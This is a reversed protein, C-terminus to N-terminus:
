VPTAITEKKIPIITVNDNFFEIIKQLNDQYLTLPSSMQYSVQELYDQNLTYLSPHQQLFHSFPDIYSYDFTLQFVQHVIRDVIQSHHITTAAAGSYARILGGTGLKTGGFYRTVVILVDHLHEKQIVSLIPVGATQSPEGDDSCRAVSDDPGIVYAFCNHNAKQHEKRIKGLHISAEEESEVPIITGIFRSGKVITETSNLEKITLDAM